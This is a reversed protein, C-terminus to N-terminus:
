LTLSKTLSIRSTFRRKAFDLEFDLIKANAWDMSHKYDFAHKTLASKDFQLHRIDALHEKKRISFSRKTEGINSFGCDNCPIQYVAGQRMNPDVSDKYCALKKGITNCPKPVTKVNHNSLCRRIKETLGPYCSIIAFGKFQQEPCNSPKKNLTVNPYLNLKLTDKVHKIKDQRNKTTSCLTNARDILSRIVSHKHELPRDSRFNLYRNSNTPKRYVSTSFKGHQNQRVLADLFPLTHKAEKKITFKISNEITNLHDLFDEVSNKHIIVFTDDVYRKWIKPQSYFTSLARKEVDERVLNAIVTSVPSGMATGFIQKYHKGRFTLNTANLCIQLGQM